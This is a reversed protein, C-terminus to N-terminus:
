IADKVDKLIHTITKGHNQLSLEFLGAKTFGYIKHQLAINAFFSVFKDHIDQRNKANGMRIFDIVITGSLKRVTMHNLILKVAAMNTAITSRGDGKDIDIVTCAKTKEFTISGGASMIVTTGLYDQLRSLLDLGDLPASQLTAGVHRKLLREPAKLKGVVHDPTTSLAVVPVKSDEDYLRIIQANLAKNNPAATDYTIFNQGKDDKLFSAKQSIDIRDLTATIMDGIAYPHDPHDIECDIIKNNLVVLAITIQTGKLILTENYIIPKM